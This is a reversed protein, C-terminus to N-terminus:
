IKASEQQQGPACIQSTSLFAVKIFVKWKRQMKLWAMPAELKKILAANTSENRHPIM